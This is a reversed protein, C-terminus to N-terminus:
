DSNQAVPALGHRMINVFIAAVTADDPYNADAIFRDLVTFIGLMFYAQARMEDQSMARLDGRNVGDEIREQILRVHAHMGTRYLEPDIHRVEEALRIYTPNEHLFGLYARVLSEEYSFFDDTEAPVSMRSLMDEVQAAMLEHLLEKKSGFHYNLNGLAVGARAAIRSVSTNTIGGDAAEALAAALIRNRTNESRAYRGRPKVEDSTLTTSKAM